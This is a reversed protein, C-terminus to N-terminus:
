LCATLQAGVPFTYEHEEIWLTVTEGDSNADEVVCWRGGIRIENGEGINAASTRCPEMM